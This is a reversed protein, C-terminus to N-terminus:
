YPHEGAETLRRKIEAYTDEPVTGREAAALNDALHQPNRTGVITTHMGPHTITLRLLFSSRSEGDALFEDLKCTEWLAWRDSQRSSHEGKAVGGRIIVGAGAAAAEGIVTEHERQLASYPIQYTAFARRELYTELDPLTSSISVHRVKGTAQVEHMVELLAAGDVAEVPANHLQWIDVHDTHLRRLSQEINALLQERTWVHRPDGGRGHADVNCGGKTALVYESRRHSLYAGIRDESVGYDPSTDVFNIGGDLVAGLLHEAQRDSVQQPDRLEMAGYGLVTARLGTDGLTRQEM